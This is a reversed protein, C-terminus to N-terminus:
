DELWWSVSGDVPSLYGAHVVGDLSSRFSAGESPYKKWQESNHTRILWKFEIVSPFHPGLIFCFPYHRVKLLLLLLPNYSSLLLSSQELVFQLLEVFYYYYTISTGSKHSIHEWYLEQYCSCGRTSGTSVNNNNDYSFFPRANMRLLLLSRPVSLPRCAFNSLFPLFPFHLLSCDRHFPITPGFFQNTQHHIFVLIVKDRWRSEIILTIPRASSCHIIQNRWWEPLQSHSGFKTSENASVKQVSILFQDWRWAQLWGRSMVCCLPLWCPRRCFPLIAVPLQGNFKNNKKDIGRWESNAMSNGKKREAVKDKDVSGPPTYDLGKNPSVVAELPLHHQQHLCNQDRRHHSPPESNLDSFRSLVFQNSNPCNNDPSYFLNIKGPWTIEVLNDKAIYSHYPSISKIHLHSLLYCWYFVRRVNVVRPPQTFM